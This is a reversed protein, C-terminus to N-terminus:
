RHVRLENVRARIRHRVLVFIQRGFIAAKRALKSRQEPTLQAM